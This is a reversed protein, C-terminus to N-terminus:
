GLNDMPVRASQAPSPSAIAPRAVLGYRPRHALLTPQCRGDAARLGGRLASGLRNQRMKARLGPRISLR